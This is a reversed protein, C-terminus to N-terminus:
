ARNAADYAELVSAPVRGRDSVEHGNKRAWSRVASLDRKAGASGQNAQSGRRGPGRGAQTGGATVRRAADIWPQLAGHLAQANKESLDIEYARGDLTFSVTEGAGDDLVAGDIDDVLQHIIRRAMASVTDASACVRAASLGHGSPPGGGMERVANKQRYDM